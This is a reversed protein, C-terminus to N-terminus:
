LELFQVCGARTRRTCCRSQFFIYVVHPLLSALEPYGESCIALSLLELLFLLHQGSRSGSKRRNLVIWFVTTSLRRHGISLATKLNVVLEFNTPQEVPIDAPKAGRLV